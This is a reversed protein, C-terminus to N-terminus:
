QTGAKDSSGNKAQKLIQHAGTSALGSVIGSAIAMLVDMQAYVPNIFRYVVGLVGGLLGMILPIWRAVKQEGGCGTKIGFGVFGCIIMIAVMNVTSGNQVLWDM